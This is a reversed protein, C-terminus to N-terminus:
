QVVKVSQPAELQKNHLDLIIAKVKNPNPVDKIIFERSEAATQIKLTGYDLFTAIVGSITVTIDEVKDLRVTSIERSFFGRQEIDIIKKDTIVLVDLYYNTWIMFFIIWGILLIASYLALFLAIENGKISVASLESVWFLLPPVILFFILFLSEFILVLKHRRVKLVLKESQDLM